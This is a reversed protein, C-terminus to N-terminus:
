GKKGGGGRRQGDSGPLKGLSSRQSLRVGGTCGLPPCADRRGGAGSELSPWAPLIGAAGMAGRPQAPRCGLARPSVMRLDAGNVGGGATTRGGGTTEGDFHIVEDWSAGTGHGAAAAPTRTYGELRGKKRAGGFRPGKEPLLIPHSNPAINEDDDAAKAQHALVPQSCFCGAKM